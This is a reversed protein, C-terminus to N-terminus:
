VVNKDKSKKMRISAMFAKAEASGKVLRARAVETKPEVEARAEKAPAHSTHGQIGTEVKTKIAPMKKAKKGEEVKIEEKVVAPRKVEVPAHSPTASPTGAYKDMEKMLAIKSMKGLPTTHVKRHEKVMKRMESVKMKDYDSM